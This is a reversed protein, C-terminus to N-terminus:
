SKKKSAAEVHHELVREVYASLSRRDHRALAILEDRLWKKARINIRADRTDLTRQRAQKAM